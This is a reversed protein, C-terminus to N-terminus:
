ALALEFTQELFLTIVDVAAVTGDRAKPLIKLLIQGRSVLFHAVLHIGASFGCPPSWPIFCATSCTRPSMM